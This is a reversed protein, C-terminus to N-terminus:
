VSVQDQAWQYHCLCDRDAVYISRSQCSCLANDPSAPDCESTKHVSSALACALLALSRLEFLDAEAAARDACPVVIAVAGTHGRDDRIPVSLVAVRSDTGDIDYLRALAVGNTEAELNTSQTLRQWASSSGAGATWQEDLSEAANSLNMAAFFPGFHRCIADFAGRYFATVSRCEDTLDIIRQLTDQSTAFSNSTSSEAASATTTTVM